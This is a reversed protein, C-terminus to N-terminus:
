LLTKLLEVAQSHTMKFFKEFLKKITSKLLDLADNKQNM